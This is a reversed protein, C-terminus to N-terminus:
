FVHVLDTRSGYISCGQYPSFVFIFVLNLVMFFIVAKFIASVQKWQTKSAAYIAGGIVIMALLVRTDYTLASIICWMLFFFLKTFGSLRHIWTDKEIYSIM